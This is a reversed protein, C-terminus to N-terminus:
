DVPYYRVVNMPRVFVEFMHTNDVFKAVDWVHIFKDPEDLRYAIAMRRRYEIMHEGMHVNLMHRGEWIDTMVIVGDQEWYRAGLQDDYGDKRFMSSFRREYPTMVLGIGAFGLAAYFAERLKWILPSPDHAWQLFEAVLERIPWHAWTLQDIAIALVIVVVLAGWLGANNRIM